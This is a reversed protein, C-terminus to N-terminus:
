THFEVSLHDRLPFEFETPPNGINRKVGNIGIKETYEDRSFLFLGFNYYGGALLAEKWHDIEHLMGKIPHPWQLDPDVERCYIHRILNKAGDAASVPEIFRDEYEELGFLAIKVGMVSMEGRALRSGWHVYDAPNPEREMVLDFIHFVLTASYADGWATAHRGM